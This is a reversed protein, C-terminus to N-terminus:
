LVSKQQKAKIELDALRAGTCIGILFFDSIIGFLDDNLNVVHNIDGATLDARPHNNIFRKGEDIMKEMNRM